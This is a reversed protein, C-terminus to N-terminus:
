TPNRVWHEAGYLGYEEGTVALFIMSRRPRPTVGAFAEAVSIMEAVGLANDAAGPFIRGRADIGYADYHATYVVAEEKLKPDSGELYGVVNSSAGRVRDVHLAISADGALERSVATGTLAKDKTEKYTTGSGAFLKEAGEDGALIIPPLKFPLEPASALEVQRRSLYDAILKYPQDKTGYNLMVLATAGRAMINGLLNQPQSAKGWLAADVGAPRGNLIVVIKCKLDVGALVDRKLEESKVGFGVFALKGSVDAREFTHPPALVYDTGYALIAAGVKFSSDAMVETSKFNVAQLYTGKDGLPKLGLQKYRNAIYEAALDGGPQMTGRGQMKPDSLAATVERLTEIKVRASLDRERVSLPAVVPKAVAAASTQAHIATITPLAFVLALLLASVRRTLARSPILKNM